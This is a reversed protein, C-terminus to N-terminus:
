FTTGYKDLLPKDEISDSLEFQVLMQWDPAAANSILTLADDNYFSFTVPFVGSPMNIDIATQNSLTDSIYCHRAGGTLLTQPYLLGLVTGNNTSSSYTSPLNCCLIGSYSEWNGDGGAWGTSVLKYRLSCRRFKTQDGKFLSNFDIMWTVNALNTKNMPVILNNVPATVLTSLYLTYIKSSATM